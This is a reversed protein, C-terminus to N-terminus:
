KKPDVPPRVDVVKWRWDSLELVLTAPQDPKDAKSIDVEFRTPNIFGASYRIRTEANTRRYLEIVGSPTVYQDIMPKVISPALAMGIAVGADYAVDGTSTDDRKKAAMYVLARQVLRERVTTWDAAREIAVVDSKDLATKLSLLTLYPWAVYAASLMTLIASGWLWNARNSRRNRQRINKPRQRPPIQSAPLPPPSSV